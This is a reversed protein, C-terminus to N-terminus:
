SPKTFKTMSYVYKHRFLTLSIMWIKLTM